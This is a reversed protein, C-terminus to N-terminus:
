PLSRFVRPVFVPGERSRVIDSEAHLMTPPNGTLIVKWYIEYDNEPDTCSTMGHVARVAMEQLDLTDPASVEYSHGRYAPARVDPVEPNIYGIDSNRHPGAAAAIASPMLLCVGVAVLWRGRSDPPRTTKCVSWRM